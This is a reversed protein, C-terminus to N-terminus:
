EECESLIDLLEEVTDPNEFLTEDSLEIIPVGTFGAEKFKRKIDIHGPISIDEEVYDIKHKILSDKLEVCCPCNPLTYIKIM